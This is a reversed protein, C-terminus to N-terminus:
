KRGWLKIFSENFVIVPGLVFTACVVVLKTVEIIKFGLEKSKGEFHLQALGSWSSQSLMQLVGMSIQPLRQTLYFSTVIEPGILISVVLNDSYVGIQSSLQNFFTPVQIRHIEYEEGEFDKQHSAAVFSKRVGARSWLLFAWVPIGGLLYAFGQGTLGLGLNSALLTLTTTLIFQASLCLNVKAGLQSAELWARIPALLTTASNLGLLVWCVALPIRLDNSVPVLLPLFPLLVVISFVIRVTIRAAKKEAASFTASMANPASNIIKAFRTQLAGTLGFEVLTLFGALSLLTRFAGVQEDGFYSLIIPTTVIGLGLTILYFVTGSILNSTARRTRM